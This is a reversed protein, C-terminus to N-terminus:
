RIQLKLECIVAGCSKFFDYRVLKQLSPLEESGIEKWQLAYKTDFFFQKSRFQEAWYNWGINPCHLGQENYPVNLQLLWIGYM